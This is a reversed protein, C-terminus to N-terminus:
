SPKAEQYVVGAPLKIEPTKQSYEEIFENITEKIKERLKQKLNYNHLISLAKVTRWTNEDIEVDVM